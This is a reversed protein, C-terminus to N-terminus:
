GAPSRRSRGRPTAPRSKPRRPVPARSPVGGSGRDLRVAARVMTALIPRAAESASRVKVHRLSKGTGEIQRFRLSLSAGQFFGLNVHDSYIMLCIADRQGVWVPSGWKLRESLGPAATRITRRLRTAIARLEPPLDALVRDVGPDSRTEASGGARSPSRTM